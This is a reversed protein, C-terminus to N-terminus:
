PKAIVLYYTDDNNNLYVWYGLWPILTADPDSGASEFSYTKGWDSGNYYYIANILWGNTVADNWSVASGSGKMVQVNKLMINGGYPSGIINWGPNLRRIYSSSQVEGNSLEPLTTIEGFVFYGEGGAVPNSSDALSYSGQNSDTTLGTSNWRYTSASGFASYGDLGSSAIDRPISVLSYGNILQVQPGTIYGTDPYTATSGDSFKAEIYFTHVAAPGFKTKYICSAGTGYTGSCSMDYGYFDSLSPNSRQTMYLRVYQPTGGTDTVSITFEYETDIKPKGDVLNNGDDGGDTRRICQIGGDSCDISYTTVYTLVPTASAIAGSSTNGANDAACVRYYYTTGNVLGTHTYSTNSGSYIQVGSSCSSPIGGATYVLIYNSIGSTLDSFGSWSLVVQSDLAVTSLTGNSPTVTDLTITDSYPTTNTNGVGDKFWVYVKKSGDGSALTWSKSSTYTEWISCSSTNSICMEPVGSSDSASLTLTVSISNTYYADSDIYFSGSPPTTDSSQLQPTASATVGISTNGANDVACVRYYYTTGNNLGTHTYSTKSGPYILTGSSCDTPMTGSSYALVYNSIGSTADSFGSWSLSVESDGATASLTGDSPGITDLVISDSYPSPNANGSRDQFWVYVTKNGEESTLTWNKSAVYTEWTSCSTTNSICMSNADAASFTLTVSTSNTFAADNNISLSGSPSASDNFSATVAQARDMTVSCTEIGSCVGSWGTFGSVIDATATLTVTTNYDYAETCDSGCDIGSPSSTISGSGIGAKTVALTFQPPFYSSSQPTNIANGVYEVSGGNFYVGSYMDYDYGSWAMTRFNWNIRGDSFLIVQFHIPYTIDNVYTYGSWDIVVSDPLDSIEVNTVLDDNSAFVADMHGTYSGNYHTGYNSCEYCSEGTELLEILGNTNVGVKVINRGNFPFTFPLTHETYSDDGNISVDSVTGSQQLNEYGTFEWSFTVISISQTDPNFEYSVQSGNIAYGVDLEAGGNFYIGSYMDYSYGSWNMTRFNWRIKGDSFLVVQFHLPYKVSSDYATSGIWEIVVRDSSTLAKVEVAGVMDDNSVFVADMHGIHSGNDHTGDTSCDYCSEGSELLEILGNTNVNIKVIDRGNFPFTFPLTYEVDSDNGSAYADVPSAGAAVIAFSNDYTVFISLVILPMILPLLKLFDRIRSM